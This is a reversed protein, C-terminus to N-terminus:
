GIEPFEYGARYSRKLFQNAVEANEGEFRETKPNHTLVPSVKLDSRSLGFPKMQQDAEALVTDWVEPVQIGSPM